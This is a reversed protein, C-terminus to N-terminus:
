KNSPPLMRGDQCVMDVWEALKKRLIENLLPVGTLEGILGSHNMESHNKERPKVPQYSSAVVGAHCQGFLSSAVNLALSALPRFDAGLGAQSVM